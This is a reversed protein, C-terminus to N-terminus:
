SAVELRLLESAAGNVLTGACASRDAACGFIAFLPTDSLLDSGNSAATINQWVAYVVRLAGGARAQRPTLDGIGVMPEFHSWVYGQKAGAAVSDQNALLIVLQNLHIFAVSELWGSECLTLEACTRYPIGAQQLYASASALEPRTAQVLRLARIEQLAGAPEAASGEVARSGKFRDDFFFPAGRMLRATATKMVLPWQAPQPTRLLAAPNAGFDQAYLPAYRVADGWEPVLQQAALLGLLLAGTQQLARPAMRVRTIGTPQLLAASFQLKVRLAVAGSSRLVETESTLQKPLELGLADDWFADFAASANLAQAVDVWLDETARPDIQFQPVMGDASIQLLLCGGHLAAYAPAAGPPFPLLQLPGAYEPRLQFRRAAADWPWLIQGAADQAIIAWQTGSRLVTLLGGDPLRAQLAQQMEAFGPAVQQAQWDAGDAALEAATPLMREMVRDFVNGACGLPNAASPVLTPVPVPTPAPPPLTAVNGQAGVAAAATTGLPLALRAGSAALAAARSKVAATGCGALLAAALLCAGLLARSGFIRGIQTPTPCMCGFQPPM